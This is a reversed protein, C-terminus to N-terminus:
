PNMWTFIMEDELFLTLEIDQENVMVQEFTLKGSVHYLSNKEIAWRTPKFPSDGITLLSAIKLNEHIISSQEYNNLSIDFTLSNSKKSYAPKIQIKTEHIIKEQLIFNLENTKTFLFFNNNLIFILIIIFLILYYLRRRKKLKEM